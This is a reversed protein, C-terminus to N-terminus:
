KVSAIDNATSNEDAARFSSKFSKESLVRNRFRV